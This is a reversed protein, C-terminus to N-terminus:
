HYGGYGFGGVGVKPAGVDGEAVAANTRRVRVDCAIEEQNSPTLACTADVLAPTARGCHPNISFRGAADGHARGIRSKMMTHIRRLRLGFGV